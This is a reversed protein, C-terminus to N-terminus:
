RESRLSGLRTRGRPDHSAVTFCSRHATSSGPAGADADRSFLRRRRLAGDPRRRCWGGPHDVAVPGDLLRWECRLACASVASRSVLLLRLATAVVGVVGVRGIGLGRYVVSGWGNGRGRPGRSSQPNNPDRPAGRRISCLRRRCTRLSASAPELSSRHAVRGAGLASCPFRSLVFISGSNRASRTTTTHRVPSSCASGIM